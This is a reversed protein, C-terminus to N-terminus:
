IRKPFKMQCFTQLATYGKSVGIRVLPGVALSVALYIPWLKPYARPFTSYVESPDANIIGYIVDVLKICLFHLAMIDFSYKGIFSFARATISFKNLLKAIYCIAYIGCATIPYFLKASVINCTALNVLYDKVVTFYVFFVLAMIAVPWRLIDALKIKCLSLLYGVLMLPLLLFATNANYIQYYTNLNTYIGLLGVVLSLGVIPILRYRSFFKTSFFVIAAFIIIGSLMMPVFWMAGGLTESGSFFFNNVVRNFIVYKTYAYSESLINIKLFPGSTLTFFTMYGFYAPWMSKLRNQILLYPADAYKADHFQLGSVFFFIALHYGYVFRVVDMNPHCHGIVISIIGIGKMIDYVANRSSNGVVPVMTRM